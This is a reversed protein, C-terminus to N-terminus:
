VCKINYQKLVKEVAEMSTNYTIKYQKYKTLYEKIRGKQRTYVHLAEQDTEIDENQKISIVMEINNVLHKLSDFLDNETQTKTAAKKNANRIAEKQENYNDLQEKTGTKFGEGKCQFCVGNAVSAFGRLTGKGDCKSCPIKYM